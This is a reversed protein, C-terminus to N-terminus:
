LPIQGSKWGSDDVASSNTPLPFPATRWASPRSTLPISDAMGSTQTWLPTGTETWIILVPALSGFRGRPLEARVPRVAPLPLDEPFQVPPESSKVDLLCQPATTFELSEGLTHAAYIGGRDVSTGASVGTPKRSDPDLLPRSCASHQSSCLPM